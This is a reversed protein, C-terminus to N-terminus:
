NEVTTVYTVDITEGSNAYYVKGDPTTISIRIDSGSIVKIHSNDELHQGDEYVENNIWVNHPGSDSLIIGSVTYSVTVEQKILQRLDELQQSEEEVTTEVVVDSKYRNANILKREQPTSFLTLIEAEVSQTIASMAVLVAALAIFIKLVQFNKKNPM